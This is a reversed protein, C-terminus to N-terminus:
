EGVVMECLARYAVQVEGWDEKPPLASCYVPLVAGLPVLGGGHPPAAAAASLLLRAVCGVANDRTGAAEKPGFLPHLAQLVQPVYQAVAAAGCGEFLVGCAFAANQRNIPDEARLERTLPPILLPLHPVM